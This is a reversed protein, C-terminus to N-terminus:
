PELSAAVRSRAGATIRASSNWPRYGELELRIGHDGLRLSELVLPTKGAPKGDVFVNAGAPRSDVQLSGVSQTAVDVKAAPKARDPERARSRAAALEVKTMVMITAAVVSQQDESLRGKIFIRDGVALDRASIKTAAKLDKVGPPVRLVAVGEPVRVEISPGADTKLILRGPQIEAM